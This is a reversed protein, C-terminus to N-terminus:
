LNLFYNLSSFKLEKQRYLIQYFVKREPEPGINLALNLTFMHENHLNTMEYIEQLETM